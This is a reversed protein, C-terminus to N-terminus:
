GGHVSYVAAHHSDRPQHEAHQQHRAAVEEADAARRAAEPGGRTVRLDRAAFGASRSVTLGFGASAGSIGSAGHSRCNGSPTASGHANPTGSAGARVVDRQDAVAVGRM